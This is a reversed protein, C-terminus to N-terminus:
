VIRFEEYGLPPADEVTVATVRAHRPGTRCWEILTEVAKPAGELDAAVTGDNCNSVSGDVGLRKAETACSIRYSVGQVVGTIVIRRRVRVPSSPHIM